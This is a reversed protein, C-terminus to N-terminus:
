NEQQSGVCNETYTHKQIDTYMHWLKDRTRVTNGMNAVIVILLSSFKLFLLILPRCDNRLWFCTNFAIHIQSPIDKGTKNLSLYVPCQTHTSAWTLTDSACWECCSADCCRDSSGRGGECATVMVIVFLRCKLQQPFNISLGETKPGFQPNRWHCFSNQISIYHKSCMMFCTIVHLFIRSDDDAETNTCTHSVRDYYSHWHCKM